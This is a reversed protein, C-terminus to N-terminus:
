GLEIHMGALDSLSFDHNSVTPCAYAVTNQAGRGRPNVKEPRDLESKILWTCTKVYRIHEIMFTNDGHWDTYKGEQM